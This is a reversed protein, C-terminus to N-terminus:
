RTQTSLALSISLKYQMMQELLERAKGAKFSWTLTGKLNQLRRHKSQQQAQHQGAHVSSLLEELAAVIRHCGELPGDQTFLGTGESANFNGCSRQAKLKELIGKLTSLESRIVRIEAPIDKLSDIYFNCFGIVRDTVQIVAIISAAVALGEAM